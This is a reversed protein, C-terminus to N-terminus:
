RENEELELYIDGDPNKLTLSKYGKKSFEAKFDPCESICGGFPGSVFYNGEADTYQIFSKKDELSYYRVSDIPKDTSKDFVIGSGVREGECSILIMCLTILVMNKKM